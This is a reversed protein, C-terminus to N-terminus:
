MKTSRIHVLKEKTETFEDGVLGVKPHHTLGSHDTKAAELADEAHMRADADNGTDDAILALASHFKFHDVHFMPRDRFNALLETAEKYHHDLKEIAIIYPLDLYATTQLHPFEEERALAALYAEIADEFQGMALLAKAKGVYAQALDFHDSCITFYQDLLALATAPHSNALYSAQIRLYQCKDRARKLKAFFETEDKATWTTRRYWDHRGVSQDGFIISRNWGDLITQDVVDSWNKAPYGISVDSSNWDKYTPEQSLNATAHLDAVRRSLGWSCVKSGIVAPKGGVGSM